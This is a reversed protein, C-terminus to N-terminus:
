TAEGDLSDGSPRSILRSSSSSAVSPPFVRSAGRLVDECGDDGAAFVEECAEELGRLEGAM